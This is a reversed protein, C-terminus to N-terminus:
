LKKVVCFVVKEKQEKVLHPMLFTLIQLHFASNLNYIQM